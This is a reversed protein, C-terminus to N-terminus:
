RITVTIVGGGGSSGGYFDGDLDAIYDDLGYYDDDYFEDDQEDDDDDPRSGPTLKGKVESLKAGGFRSYTRAQGHDPTFTIQVRRDSGWSRKLERELQSLGAKDNRASMVVGAQTTTYGALQAGGKSKAFGVRNADLRSNWQKGDGKFGAQRARYEQGRSSFGRAQSAANLRASEGRRDKAM